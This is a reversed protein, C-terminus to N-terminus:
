RKARYQRHCGKCAANVDAINEELADVSWGANKALAELSMALQQYRESVDGRNQWIEPRASTRGRMGRDAISTGSKWLAANNMRSLALLNDAIAQARKQSYRINGRIMDGLLDMNIAYLKMLGQRAEVLDEADIALANGTFLMCLAFLTSKLRSVPSM